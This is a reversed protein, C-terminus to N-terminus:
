REVQPWKTLKDIYAMSVKYPDGYVKDLLRKAEIYGESANMFMCGAILSKPKGELHQDLFYLRNSDSTTHPVIRDNFALMFSAYELLDGCFKTVEAHPLMMAAALQQQSQYFSEQPLHWPYFLCQSMPNIRICM